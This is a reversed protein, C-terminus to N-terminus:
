LLHEALSLQIDLDLSHFFVLFSVANEEWVFELETNITLLGYRGLETPIHYVCMYCIVLSFFLYFM